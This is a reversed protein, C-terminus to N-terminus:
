EHKHSRNEHPHEIQYNRLDHYEELFEGHTIYGDIYNDVLDSYKAGKRHGADWPDGEYIKISKVNADRVFVGNEDSEKSTLAWLHKRFYKHHTPRNEILYKRENNVKEIDRQNWLTMFEEFNHRKSKKSLKKHRFVYIIYDGSDNEDPQHIETVDALFRGKTYLAKILDKENVPLNTTINESTEGFIEFIRALIPKIAEQKQEVENDIQEAKKIDAEDGTRKATNIEKKAQTGRSILETYRGEANSLLSAAEAKKDDPLDNLKSRWQHLKRGLPIPNSCLIIEVTSGEESFYIQHSQTGAVFQVKKGVESDELQGGDSDGQEGDNRKGTLKGFLKMAMGKIRNILAVVATEIKERIKQIIGKVKETLGSIGLLSALFGILVPISTKLANEIGGAVASINGSAVASIGQIFAQVMAIVQQGRQIFFKVIDIIAMAAKIFASAPNLLSLMWKIGAQIVETILMNQIAGMVMEKLNAFKEKVYEWLATIGQTRIKTFLEMTTEIVGMVREGLIRAAISRVFDWSVGLVQTVLGFIGKLSFLNEPMTFGDSNLAGTLWGILGEKMHTLINAIFNNLGQSVGQILLGLFGIPDKIIAKIVDMASAILDMLINKINIITTIVAGISDLAWDILGRNAAKMEDIRADVEGLTDKYRNALSDILQSEKNDVSQELADFKQQIGEAAERGIKQLNKPLSTVYNQIEQKGQTIRTKAANLDNAVVEAINTIVPDMTDIFKDKGDVFFQNVEDPLGTFKDGVWNLFGGWGGYRRDLYADMQQKVYSEFAQKAKAAGNSFMTEVKSDLNELIGEVDTKTSEYITNIESAIRQRETTDVTGTQQQTGLVQELATSRDQFMGEMSEQSEAEANAKTNQLVGQEKGRFEGPAQATHERAQNTADLAGVFTPENSKALQEDTIENEAMQQDVESMNDQLPQSVEAEGRKPPMGKQASVSGPPSGVPTPELPTVQREPIAAVNPQKATASDISKAAAEQKNKADKTAEGRVENINNHNKFDAAEEENKPLRMKEIRGMLKTKFEEASFEGPEQQEMSDVQVTQAGSKRENSPSVAADQAKDASTKSPEHDQQEESTNDVRQKLNQFNTDEEPSRPTTAQAEETAQGKEVGGKKATEGKQSPAGESKSAEAANQEIGPTESSGVQTPQADSKEGGQPANAEPAANSETEPSGGSVAEGENGKMQILGKGQIAEPEEEKIQTNIDAAEGKAAKAGMNDAERELETDNNVPLGKAQTTPKVRGSRQQVVHTLEHGILEQGKPTAPNYQGPAFHIDNGQAFAYAGMDKAKSSNKHINVNSFDTQFAGEMKGRVDTSLQSPSSTTNSSTDTPSPNDKKQIPQEELDELEEEHEVPKLQLTDTANNESVHPTTDALKQQVVTDAMADAEQEYKNNPQGINMKAQIVYPSFHPSQEYSQFSFNGSLDDNLYNNSAHTTSSSDKKNATSKM